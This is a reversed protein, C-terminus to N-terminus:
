KANVIGNRINVELNKIWRNYSRHIKEGDYRMNSSSKYKFAVSEKSYPIDITVSEKNNHNLTAVVNTDTASNIVWGYKSCAAIIINKLQVNSINPNIPAVQIIPSNMPRKVISNKIGCGYLGITFAILLVTLKGPRM